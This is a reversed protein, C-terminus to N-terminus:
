LDQQTNEEDQIFNGNEDYLSLVYDRLRKSLLCTKDQIQKYVDDLTIMEEAMYDYVEWWLRIELKMKRYPYPQTSWENPNDPNVYVGGWEKMDSGDASKGTYIPM